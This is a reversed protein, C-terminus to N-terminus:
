GNKKNKIYINLASIVSLINALTTNNNVGVGWFSGEKDNITIKTYSIGKADSGLGLSHESQEVVSISYGLHKSMAKTFADVPGNGSGSLEIRGDGFGIVAKCDCPTNSSEFSFLKCPADRSYERFFMEEIEKHKVERDMADTQKGSISGFEVLMSKPIKIGYFTELLYAVAGKGSQANMRIIRSHDVGVDNPDLPIYPIEWLVSGSLKRSVLGKRIADQHTGSFATFVLDGSYPQRPPVTMGTCREYVEIVKKIESFDLGSDIGQTHLNLALTVLDANGTREGNGFLTGEVRNAGALMGLEASAVGTGRDNHTHLSIVISDRDEAFKRCFFEVQDAYINPTAVEVTAPLNLVLKKNLTPKWEKMVAQCIQVSFEVETASFSEPSYELAIESGVLLKTCEESVWKVGSVALEIIEPKELCFVVKRQVPSTSNYLHIIVKKAGVLSKVTEKIINEKCFTLVQITVDDPILNEEILRRVFLFETKSSAPFGVEIEKFGIRVLEKFFMIKEEVGMPKELAQNGDRLDVSCWVPAKNIIQDPWTRGVLCIAGFPRYKGEIIM